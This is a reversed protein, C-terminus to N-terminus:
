CLSNTGYVFRTARHQTGAVGSFLGVAEGERRGFAAGSSLCGMGARLKGRKRMSLELAPQDVGSEHRWKKLTM